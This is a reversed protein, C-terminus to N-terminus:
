RILKRLIDLSHSTWPLFIDGIGLLILIIELLFVIGGIILTYTFLLILGQRLSRNRNSVFLRKTLCALEKRVGM